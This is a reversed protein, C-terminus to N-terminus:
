RETESLVAALRLPYVRGKGGGDNLELAICLFETRASPSDDERLPMSLCAFDLMQLM